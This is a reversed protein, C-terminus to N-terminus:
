PSASRHTLRPHTSATPPSCSPSGTASRDLRVLHEALEAPRGGRARLTEFVGDGLQFGRDFASVSADAAAVLAGDVWAYM